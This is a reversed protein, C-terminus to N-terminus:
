GRDGGTATGDSTDFLRDALAVPADTEQRPRTTRVEQHWAGSPALGAGGAVAMVRLQAVVDEGSHDPPLNAGFCFGGVSRLAATDFLVCGGIWAVKYLRQREKTIGLREGVVHLYAAFHLRHRQWERSGPVVREPRVPGDWLEIAVDPPPEDVPKPSRVASPANVFSGVFGCREAAIASLLRATLDPEVIVDDDLFLAYPATVRDLLSQRHEAMGRRPLHKVVEVDHGNLRLVRVVASVEGLDAVDFAETQDSVVVRLRVGSQALLSTLTVALAAPRAFTPVLVDVDAM